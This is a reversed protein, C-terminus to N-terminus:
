ATDALLQNGEVPFVQDGVTYENDYNTPPHWSLSRGERVLFGSWRVVPVGQTELTAISDEVPEEVGILALSYPIAPSIRRALSALWDDLPERWIRSANNGFPYSGIPYGTGLACIPIYLCLWITGWGEGLLFTGCAVRKGNPLTAVGYFSGRSPTLDAALRQQAHPETDRELYCGELQQDAWIGKLGADLFPDTPNDPRIALTYHGGAWVDRATFVRETNSETTGSRQADDPCLRTPLGL